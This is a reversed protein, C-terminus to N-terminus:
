GRRKLVPGRRQQAITRNESIALHAFVHSTSRCPFVSFCPPESTMLLVERASRRSITRIPQHPMFPKERHRLAIGDPAPVSRPRNTRSKQAASKGSPCRLAIRRSRSFSLSPLRRVGAAFHLKLIGNAPQQPLLPLFEDSGSFPHSSANQNRGPLWAM